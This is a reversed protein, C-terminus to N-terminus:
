SLGGLSLTIGRRQCIARVRGRPQTKLSGDGFVQCVHGGCQPGRLCVRPSSRGGLPFYHGKSCAFGESCSFGAPGESAARMELVGSLWLCPPQHEACADRFEARLIRGKPPTGEPSSPPGLRPEQTKAVRM